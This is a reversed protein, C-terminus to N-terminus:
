KYLEYYNLKSKKPYMIPVDCVRALADLFDDHKAAPFQLYEEDKFYTVLDVERGIYNKKKLFLPFWIKGDEFLPALREIRDNKKMTGGVEAISFRYNRHEMAQRMYDIDIQMGYKEYYIMKPQYQEHIKFVLNEREKINLKDVWADILYIHGDKNAGIVVIATNDSNKDKSNAPDVFVYINMENLNLEERYYRIWAEKFVNGGDLIPTQMYLAAWDRTTVTNRINSLNELSYREPWLALENGEQDKRIAPLSIVHWAEKKEHLLWGSLDDNHWRTQIIIIAGDPELRTYATSSYWDKIGQRILSSDAEEHNKIPDDIILCHAGRGTISAGMGVAYYSGGRTTSFKKAAASDTSLLTTPFIMQFLPDAIHNRVKRGFEEAFEQGYSAFIINKEPNRGFYWAPFMESTLMSKGHRPPCSIMLRKIRGAEVEQLARAIRKIHYPTTDFQPNLVKAFARLKSFAIYEIPVNKNKFQTM